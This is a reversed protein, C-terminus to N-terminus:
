PARGVLVGDRDFLVIEVAIDRGEVIRAATQQAARAVADGLAIGEAHALTFAEAANNAAVIRACLRRRAARRRARVRCAAGLDVEGRKSHLDTLGQALKTMKGVGGAITVRPVPHARLYKLMGGVFDGMDILAIEPLDYLKQM